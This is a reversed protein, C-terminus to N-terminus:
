MNRKVYEEKMKGSIEKMKVFKGGKKLNKGKYIYM